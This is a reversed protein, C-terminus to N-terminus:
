FLVPLAAWSNGSCCVLSSKTTSTQRRGKLIGDSRYENYKSTLQEILDDVAVIVLLPRIPNAGSNRLAKLLFYLKGSDLASHRKNNSKLETKKIKRHGSKQAIWQKGEELNEAVGGVGDVQVVAPGEAPGAM